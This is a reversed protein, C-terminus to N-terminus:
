KKMSSLLAKNNELLQDFMDELTKITITDELSKKIISHREKSYKELAKMEKTKLELDSYAKKWNAERRKALDVDTELDKIKIQYYKKQEKISNVMRNFVLQNEEKIETIERSHRHELMEIAIKEKVQTKQEPTMTM